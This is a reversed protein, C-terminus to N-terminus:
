YHLYTLRFNTSACQATGKIRWFNHQSRLQIKLSSQQDKCVYPCIITQKTSSPAIMAPSWPAPKYGQKVM